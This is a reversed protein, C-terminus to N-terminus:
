NINVMRLLKKKEREGYICMWFCVYLQFIEYAGRDDAAAAAAAQKPIKFWVKKM